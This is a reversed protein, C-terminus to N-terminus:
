LDKRRYLLYALFFSIVYLIISVVLLAGFAQPYSLDFYGSLVGYMGWFVLAGIIVAATTFRFTKLNIFIVLANIVLLLPISTVVDRFLGDPIMKLQFAANVIITFMFGLAIGVFMLLVSLLYKSLVVQMRSVPLTVAFKEWESSRDFGITGEVSSFIIGIIIFNNQIGFASLLIMFLVSLGLMYALRYKMIVHVDKIILGLM